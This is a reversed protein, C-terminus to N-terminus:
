SRHSCAQQETRRCVASQWLRARDRTGGGRFQRVIPNGDRCVAIPAGGDAFIIAPRLGDPTIRKFHKPQTRSFSGNPDPCLWHGGTSQHVYSLKGELDLKAVGRTSHVFFTEGQAIGSSPHSIATAAAGLFCVAALWTTWGPKM